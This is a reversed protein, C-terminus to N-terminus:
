ILYKCDIRPLELKSYPLNNNDAKFGVKIKMKKLIKITNKNYSNCPHSM